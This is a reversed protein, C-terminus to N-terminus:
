MLLEPRIGLCRGLQRLQVYRCERIHGAIKIKEDVTLETYSHKHFDSLYQGDIISCLEEDTIIAEKLWGMNQTMM